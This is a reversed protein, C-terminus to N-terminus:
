ALMQLNTSGPCSVLASGIHRSSAIERGVLYQATALRWYCLKDNFSTRCVRPLWCHRQELSMSGLDSERWGKFGGLVVGDLDM